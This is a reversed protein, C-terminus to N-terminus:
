LCLVPRWVADRVVGETMFAVGHGGIGFHGDGLDAKSKGISADLCCGPHRFGNKQLHEILMVLVDLCAGCGAAGERQCFRLEQRM